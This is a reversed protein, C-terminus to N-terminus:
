LYNMYAREYEVERNALYNLGNDSMAYAYGMGELLGKHDMVISGSSNPTAYFNFSRSKYSAIVIFSNNNAPLAHVKAGRTELFSRAQVAKLGTQDIYLIPNNNAYAYWNSGDKIPDETIFRGANADYQRARLYVYGTEADTYEGAYRFPNVDGVVPMAENGFSDYTYDKSVQGSTNTM